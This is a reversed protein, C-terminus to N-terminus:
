KGFSRQQVGDSELSHLSDTMKNSEQGSDTYNGRSPGALLMGSSAVIFCYNCFVYTEHRSINEGIFISFFRSIVSRKDFKIAIHGRRKVLFYTEFHERSQKRGCVTTILM